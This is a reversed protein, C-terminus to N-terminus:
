SYAICQIQIQQFFAKFPGGFSLKRSEQCKKKAKYSKEESRRTYSFKVGKKGYTKGMDSFDASHGGRGM